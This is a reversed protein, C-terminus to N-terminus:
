LDGSQIDITKRYKLERRVILVACTSWFSFYLATALGAGTVGWFWALLVLSVLYIISALVNLTLLTRHRNWVLLAAGYSQFFGWIVAGVVCSIAAPYSAAFDGGLGMELLPKGLLVFMTLAILGLFGVVLSSRHLLKAVARWGSREEIAAMDPYIAQFIPDIVKTLAIGIQRAIKFLGVAAPNLLWGLILVDLDRVMRLTASLNTSVLRSRMEPFMTMVERMNLIPAQM